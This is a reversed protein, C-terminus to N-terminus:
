VDHRTLHVHVELKSRASLSVKCTISGHTTAAITCGSADDTSAMMAIESRVRYSMVSDLLYGSNFANHETVPSYSGNPLKVRTLGYHLMYDIVAMHLTAYAAAGLHMCLGPTGGVIYSVALLGVQM